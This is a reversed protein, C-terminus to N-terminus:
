LKNTKNYGDITTVRAYRIWNAAERMGLAVAIEFLDDVEEVLSPRDTPVDREIESRVTTKIRMNKGTEYFM